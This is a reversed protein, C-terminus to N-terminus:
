IIVEKKDKVEVSRDLAALEDIQRLAKEKKEKFENAKCFFFYMATIVFVILCQLIIFAHVTHFYSLSLTIQQFIGM